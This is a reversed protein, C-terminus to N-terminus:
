RTRYMPGFCNIGGPLVPASAANRTNATIISIRNSCVHSSSIRGPCIFSYTYLAITFLGQLFAQCCPLTTISSFPFSSLCYILLLLRLRLEPTIKLETPHRHHDMHRELSKGPHKIEKGHMWFRHAIYELFTFTFFGTSFLLLHFLIRNENEALCIGFTVPNILVFFIAYCETQQFTTNLCTTAVSPKNKM